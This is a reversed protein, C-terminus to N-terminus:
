LSAILVRIATEGSRRMEDVVEGHSLPEGAIGCALNTVVALLGYDIGAERLLIAESAATMGVVDGIRAYVQIEHPTEYRPGNGCVYVGGDEVAVSERRAGELLAERAPLPRSFDTHVVIRDFLTANRATLDLFDSPVVLTGAEWEPRLSGVAATAFCKQVGLAQLGLAIAKYNVLHPPVKHGGSHRKVLM